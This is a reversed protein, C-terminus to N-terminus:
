YRWIKLAFVVAALDLDHTLYNKERVKLERSVYSIVKGLQMLVCGLFVRSADYYIVYGDSCDLPTLVPAITM